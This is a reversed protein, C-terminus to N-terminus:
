VKNFLLGAASIGATRPDIKIANIKLAENATQKTKVSQNMKTEVKFQTSKNLVV